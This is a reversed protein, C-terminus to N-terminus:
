PAPFLDNTWGMLRYIILGLWEKAAVNLTTLGGAISFHGTLRYDGTTRYDVPYPLVNWDQARFVGVARPMHMASTILVWQEGSKPEALRKGFLVNEYTDRARDELLVRGPDIGSEDFFRRAMEAESLAGPLLRGQGGTFLIRAEPHRLALAM